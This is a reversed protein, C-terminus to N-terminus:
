APVYSWLTYLAETLSAELPLGIEAGHPRPPQTMEATMREADARVQRPAHWTVSRLIVCSSTTDSVLTGHANVQITELNHRRAAQVYAYMVVALRDLAWAPHRQVGAALVVRALPTDSVTKWLGIRLSACELVGDIHVGICTM